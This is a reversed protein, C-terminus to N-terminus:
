ESLYSSQDIGYKKLILKNNAQIDKAPLILPRSVGECKIVFHEPMEEPNLLEHLQKLSTIKVDNISEVANGTFGSLYSNIPDELVNTLIVIDEREQFINESIYKTFLRRVRPNSIALETYLNRSLPQFALGGQITYEPRKGYQVAYIEAAPFHKLTIEANQEKGDRIFTLSVKDGAFKREVIENMNVREGDIKVSGSSDILKDNIKTLIDGKQLTGDVPGDKYIRAVLIGPDDQKLNYAKRMAPNFLSFRSLGLEVYKDYQGDKIDTLFRNIVPSPIMYGTNDASTLGQFAVGVVNGNQLVPGGSNGPNIAADIQVVLHHDSRTHAYSRFDIRSVVGRTVSIRDGGVPYGIVRVQSELQPVNGVSLHQLGDFPSFDEVELIALDCDHAIHRVRAPHKRASGHMTIMVRRANSVVHANTLFTNEGILFGTGTGGTFQGSNWPSKYSAVQAAVEIRVVSQYIDSLKIESSITTPKPNTQELLTTQANTILSAANLSICILSPILFKM